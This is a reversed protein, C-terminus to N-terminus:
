IVFNLLKKDIYIIKKTDKGEIYKRINEQEKAIKEIEIQPLNSDVTIQGRLKGNIQIAIEISKKELLSEDAEPWEVDIIINQNGLQNWLAHTIHPTIPSLSILITNIAERVSSKEFDKANVSLFEKPIANTLEMISAIATNFSHRRLFDDKVKSLTQHTKNRLTTVSESSDSFDLEKKSESDLHDQVLNWLRNLYRSAGQLGQESWEFSQDPPAVFMVFLRLTDAGYLDIVENPDVINGKSKSMKSGDKLVMGQCLLNLFPESGEVLGLDRLCRYFFRSYLLHLVAHEIGGVYQDVPLWYKAREDLM